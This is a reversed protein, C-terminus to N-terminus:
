ADPVSLNPPASPDITLCTLDSYWEQGRTDGSHEIVVARYIGSPQTAAYFQMGTRSPFHIEGYMTESAPASVSAISSSQIQVPQGITLFPNILCRARIGNTTAEPVGVLGTQPTLVVAQGPLYGTNSVVRLVGGNDIFWRAGATAAIQRMQIRGLGWAVKGRPFVGGFFQSEIASVANPDVSSVGMAQAATAVVDMVRSGKALTQNVLGYNYGVDGAAASIELFRDTANEKGRVFMKIEGSFLVQMGTGKYGAQLTVINYQTLVENLTQDNLNYVRVVMSNPTESDSQEIRFRFHLDSLDRGTGLTTNAVVLNAKRGWQQGSVPNAVAATSM